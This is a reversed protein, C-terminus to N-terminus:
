NSSTEVCRAQAELNILKSNINCAEAFYSEEARTYGLERSNAAMMINTQIMKKGICIAQTIQELSLSEVM